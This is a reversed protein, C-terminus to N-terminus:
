KHHPFDQGYLYSFRNKTKKKKKQGDYDILVMQDVKNNLVSDTLACIDLSVLRHASSIQDTASTATVNKLKM